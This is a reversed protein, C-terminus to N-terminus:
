RRAASRRCLLGPQGDAAPRLDPPCCPPRYFAFWGGLAAGLLSTVSGIAGKLVAITEKSLGYDRMFPGILTAVMTDGFKYGCVLLAFFAFGPTALRRRDMGGPAGSRLHAGPLARPAARAIRARAIGHGRASAAMCLFMTGWGTKAFVWLLLGGGFIM